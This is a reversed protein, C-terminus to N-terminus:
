RWWVYRELENMPVNMEIKEIMAKAVEPPCDKAVFKVIEQLNSLLDVHKIHVAKQKVDFKMIIAISKIYYM